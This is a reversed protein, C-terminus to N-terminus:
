LLKAAKVVHKVLSYTYGMENDYWALVKVLNGDVVKIFSLDVISAYPTGIIDTSVLEEDTTTFIGQWREEKAANRFIEQLEEVTTDRKALFTFDAISGSIVPVRMAVGNFKGALEKVAKTVSIAAGTSTPIINQAAARGKRFDKKDVGDVVKQTATYGHITNLFAKEVGVSESMIQAVPSTSNTTCSGNSSVSCTNLEGDNIGMLITKGADGEEGKGPASIVVRKAGAEIHAKADEYKTFFGTSEVVIDVELEGWPLEKPDKQQVFKIWKENVVLFVGGENREVRIDADWKKQASDYKLLYALNDVDGLDNIAVVDLEERQSAVKLFQRGIRGFGNIAVKKM